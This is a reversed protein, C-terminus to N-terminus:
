PALSRRKEDLIFGFPNVATLPTSEAFDEDQFFVWEGYSARLLKTALERVEDRLAELVAVPHSRRALAALPNSSSVPAATFPNANASLVGRKDLRSLLADIEGPYSAHVPEGGLFFLTARGLAIPPTSTNAPTGLPLLPADFVLR